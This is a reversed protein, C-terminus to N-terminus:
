FALFCLILDIMLFRILATSSDPQLSWQSLFPPPTNVGLDDAFAVFRPQKIKIELTSLERVM